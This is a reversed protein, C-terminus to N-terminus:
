TIKMKFEKLFYLLFLRFRGQIVNRIFYYWLRATYLATAVSHVGCLM